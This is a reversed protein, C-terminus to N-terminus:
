GKAAEKKNKKNPKLERLGSSAVAIIIIVGIIGILVCGIFFAKVGEPAEAILKILEAM